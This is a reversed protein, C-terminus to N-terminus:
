RFDTNHLFFFPAQYCYIDVFINCKFSFYFQDGSFCGSISQAPKMVGGVAGHDRDGAQKLSIAIVVGIKENFNGPQLLSAAQVYLWFSFVQTSEVITFTHFDM